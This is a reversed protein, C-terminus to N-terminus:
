LKKLTKLTALAARVAAKANPIKRVEAQAPTAGPGILGLGIPKKYKLQLDILARHVVHGMVEGHLTEGKEIFGLAVGADISRRRILQEMVLPIEYSGTVLVVQTITAKGKAEERAAAVMENTLPQHFAAAVLALRPKAPKKTM